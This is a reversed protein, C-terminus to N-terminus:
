TDALAVAAKLLTIVLAIAISEGDGGGAVLPVVVLIPVVALDQFLLVAFAARGQRTAVEGREAMLQLVFATSSLALAAAAVASTAADYGLAIGAVGIALGTVLVQGAGLGFVLRRMVKLRELSLELGIAFLLFM